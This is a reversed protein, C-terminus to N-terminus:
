PPDRSRPRTNNMPSAEAVSRAAGLCRRCVASPTKSLPPLAPFDRCTGKVLLFSGAPSLDLNIHQGPAHRCCPRAAVRSASPVRHCAVVLSSLRRCCPPNPSIEDPRCGSGGSSKRRFSPHQDDHQELDRMPDRRNPACAFGLHMLGGQPPPQHPELLRFGSSKSRPRHRPPHAPNDRSTRELAARRSGMPGRIRPRVLGSVTARVDDVHRGPWSQFSARM